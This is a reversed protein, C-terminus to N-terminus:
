LNIKVVEIDLTQHRIDDILLARDIYRQNSMLEPHESFYELLEQLSIIGYHGRHGGEKEATSKVELIIKNPEM